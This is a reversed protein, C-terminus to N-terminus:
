LLRISEFLKLLKQVKKLGKKIVTHVKFVSCNYDKAIESLTKRDLYRARLVRKELESCGDVLLEFSPRCMKEEKERNREDRLVEIDEIRGRKEYCKFEKRLCATVYASVFAPLLKIPISNNVKNVANILALVAADYCEQESVERLYAYKMRCKKVFHMLLEDSYLLLNELDEIRRTEKYKFLLYALRKERAYTRIDVGVLRYKSCLSLLLVSV